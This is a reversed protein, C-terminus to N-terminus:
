LLRSALELLQPDRDSPAQMKFTDIALQAIAARSLTTPEAIQLKDTWDTLKQAYHAVAKENVPIPGWSLFEAVSPSPGRGRHDPIWVCFAGRRGPDKGVQGVVIAGSEHELLIPEGLPLDRLEGGLKGVWPAAM